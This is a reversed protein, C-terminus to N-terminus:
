FFYFFLAIFTAVQSNKAFIGYKHSCLRKRRFKLVFKNLLVVGVGGISSSTIITGGYTSGDYCFARRISSLAFTGNYTNDGDVDFIGYGWKGYGSTKVNDTVDFSIQSQNLPETAM